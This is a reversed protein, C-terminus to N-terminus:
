GDQFIEVQISLLIGKQVKGKNIISLIDRMQSIIYTMVNSFLKKKFGCFTINHTSVALRVNESIEQFEATSRSELEVTYQM